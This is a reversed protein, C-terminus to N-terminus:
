RYKQGTVRFVFDDGDREVRFNTRRIQSSPRNAFNLELEALRNETEAPYFHLIMGEDVNTVGARRLLERDAKIRDGGQWGFFLRGDDNGVTTDRRVATTSLNSLYVIRGDPWAVGLEIGFFDLQQSYLLLDGSDAFEVFWRQERKTGGSGSAPPTGLPKGGTGEASGPNGGSDPDTFEAPLEVQSADASVTLMHDLVEQLETNQQDNSLSPDSSVNEPSEINLSEDPSGDVFGGEGAIMQVGLHTREPLLNSLWVSILAIVTGTMLVVAAILLSTALDYRTERM